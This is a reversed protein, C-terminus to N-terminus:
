SAFRLPALESQGEACARPTMGSTALSCANAFISCAAASDWRNVGEFGGIGSLSDQCSLVVEERVGFGERSSACFPASSLRASKNLQPSPCFEWAVRLRIDTMCLAPSHIRM